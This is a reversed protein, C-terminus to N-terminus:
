GSSTSQVMAAVTSLLHGFAEPASSFSKPFVSQQSSQPSCGEGASKGKRGLSNKEGLPAFAVHKQELLVRSGGPTILCLWWGLLHIQWSSKSDEERM